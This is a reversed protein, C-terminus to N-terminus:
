AWHLRRSAFAMTWRFSGRSSCKALASAVCLPDPRYGSHTQWSWWYVSHAAPLRLARPQTDNSDYERYEDDLAARGSAAHPRRGDARRDCDRGCGFTILWLHELSLAAIERQDAPCRTESEELTKLFAQAEPTRAATFEEAPAIVDIRGDKLLAIRTGLM